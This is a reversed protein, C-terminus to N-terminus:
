SAESRSICDAINEEGSCKDFEVTLGNESAIKTAVYLYKGGLNRKETAAFGGIRDNRIVCRKLGCEAALEVAKLVAFCEAAFQDYAGTKESYCKTNFHRATFRGAPTDVVIGVRCGGNDFKAVRGYSNVTKRVTNQAADCWIVAGDAIAAKAAALRAAADEHAKRDAAEQAMLNRATQEQREALALEEAAKRAAIEEDTPGAPGKERGLAERIAPFEVKYDLGAHYLLSRIAKGSLNERRAVEIIEAVTQPKTETTAM